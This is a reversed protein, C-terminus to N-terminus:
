AATVVTAAVANRKSVKVIFNQGVVWPTKKVSWGHPREEELGSRGHETLSVTRFRTGHCWEKTDGM